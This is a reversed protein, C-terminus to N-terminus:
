FLLRCSCFVIKVISSHPYFHWKQISLGQALLERIRNSQVLDALIELCDKFQGNRFAALGLVAMARNFLVQTKIDTHTVSDNIHSMLLMERAIQYNNHISLNHVHMLLARVRSQETGSSYLFTALEAVLQMDGGTSISKGQSVAAPAPASTKQEETAQKQKNEEEEKVRQKIKNLLIDQEPNYKYYILELKLFATAAQYTTKNIRQYYDMTKTVVSVLLAEDRLRLIYEETHYDISQLAKRFEICLLQVFSYLNGLVYQVGSSAGTAASTSTISRNLEDAELKSKTEDLTKSDQTSLAEAKEENDQEFQEEVKEDESLRVNPNDNLLKIVEIVEGACEKWLESPMHTGKNLTVDFLASALTTHVKLLAAPETAKSALLKLDEIMALRDTGRKGRMALLEKLKKIVQEPSLKEGREALLSKDKGAKLAKAVSAQEKVEQKKKKEEAKKKRREQKEKEDESSEESSEEKKVWFERTFMAAKGSALDLDIDSDSESVEAEESEESESGEESGEDSEGDSDGKKKKATAKKKPKEEESEEEESEESEEESEDGKGGKSTKKLFKSRGVAEEESSESESEESESEKKKKAPKAKAKKTKTPKEEADAATEKEEVPNKAYNEFQSSYQGIFKKLKQKMSNLAKANPAAMKKKTEKNEFQEKQERELTSIAQLIFLPLGEKKILKEAKEIQKLLTDFDKQIATWDHIKIHNKVLKITALLQDFRKDKESKVTRKGEDESESSEYVFKGGTAKEGKDLQKDSDDGSSYESESESESDGRAFFKSM